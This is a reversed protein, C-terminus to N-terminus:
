SKRRLLMLESHYGDVTRYGFPLVNREVLEYGPLMPLYDDGLIPTKVGVWNDDSRKQKGELMNRLLVWRAGLRRVHALYNEVIHPEMEQFSFFNVFLDIEGRLKEIQWSCLVSCSALQEIQIEKLDRTQAYTAVKDAGFVSSLYHQAVYSTPPIDIDIYRLGDIGSSALIEGLTGYGAGIELVTRPCDGGLHKKLLVLGLLYNLSNRSFKRGEYEFHEIPEGVSSESFHHLHPLRSTDDAAVLTRYDSRAQLDGSLFQDLGLQAKKALPYNTELWDRLGTAQEPTFSNGPTGYTAVFFGLITPQMRFRDIGLDNIESVIRSSAEDWFVTPRYFESQALMDARALELEPYRQPTSM